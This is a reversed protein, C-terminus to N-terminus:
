DLASMQVDMLILDYKREKMADLAERGNGFYYQQDKKDTFIIM